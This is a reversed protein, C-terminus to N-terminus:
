LWWLWSGRPPGLYPLLRPSPATAPQSALWAQEPEVNLTLGDVSRVRVRDGVASVFLSRAQWTEGGIRVRGRPTCAAVVTASLGVLTSAGVLPEPRKSWWVGYLTGVIEWVLAAAFGVGNWPHPLVFLVVGGVILPLV